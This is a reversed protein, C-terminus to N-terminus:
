VEFLDEMEEIPNPPKGIWECWCDYVSFDTVGKVRYIVRSVERNSYDLYKYLEVEKDFYKKNKPEFTLCKKVQPHYIKILGDIYDVTESAENIIQKYPKLKAKM